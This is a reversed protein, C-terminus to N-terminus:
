AVPPTPTPFLNPFMRQLITLFVPGFEQLLQLLTPLGIGTAEAVKKVQSHQDQSVQFPM